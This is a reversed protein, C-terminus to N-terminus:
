RNGALVFWDNVWDLVYDYSARDVRGGAANWVTMRQVELKPDRYYLRTVFNYTM